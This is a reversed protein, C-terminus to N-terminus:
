PAASAAATTGTLAVGKKKQQAEFDDSVFWGPLQGDYIGQAAKVRVSPLGIIPELLKILEQQFHTRGAHFTPDASYVYMRVANGRMFVSPNPVVRVQGVIPGAKELAAELDPRKTDTVGYPLSAYAYRNVITRKVFIQLMHGARGSKCAPGKFQSVDLGHASSQNIIDQALKAKMAAPVGCSVLLNELVGVFSLDTCSYGMLFVSTPTAEMDTALLSTTASIGVARFVPDHDKSSMKKFREQLTAADPIDNFPKKLLRPLTAFESKFRFLVSAVAAQVEYLLAAFSYSHYFVAWEGCLQKERSLMRDFCHKGHPDTGAKDLTYPHNRLSQAGLSTQMAVLATTPALTSAIAQSAKEAATLEVAAKVATTTSAAPPTVGVAPGATPLVPPAAPPTVPAATAWMASVSSATAPAASVIPAAGVASTTSPAMTPPKSSAALGPSAETKHAKVPKTDAVEGDDETDSDAPPAKPAAAAAHAAASVMGTLARTFGVDDSEDGTEVRRLHRMRGSVTNRQTLKGLDFEYVTGFGANFSLDTTIFKLLSAAKHKEIMASDAPTYSVWLGDDGKYEWCVAPM